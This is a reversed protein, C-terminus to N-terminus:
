ILGNDLIQFSLADDFDKADKPDITFTLVDRMDRRKAIEEKTISTDIKNAFEEVEHPFEYPLGYEALIAHIETNHEGPKGLVKLVKGYPSDANEPWDELSVLVKDGDEAKNTKNIPVFIDKYMKNSDPIVFAYNNHVQIVGVYESKARKIIQTIEGEIKGRKRRKYVYFEM